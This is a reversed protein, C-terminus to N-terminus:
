QSVNEEDDEWSLPNHIIYERIRNLEEEDRIVREYFNRQWFLAGPIKRKCNIHKTTMTKFAGIIRGLSKPRPRRSGHNVDTAKIGQDPVSSRLWVIAHFHNPM